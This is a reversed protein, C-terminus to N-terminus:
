HPVLAILAGAMIAADAIDLLGGQRQMVPPYDKIYSARKARSAALDGAVSAVGAALAALAADRISLVGTTGALTLATLLLMASGFALGEATKNPSLRPFIRHRGFLKGGLLAYSDFTEVLIFAGLLAVLHADDMAAAVTLGLPLAPFLALEAALRSLGNESGNRRTAFIFLGALLAIMAVAALRAQWDLSIQITMVALAVAAAAVTLTTAGRSQAHRLAVVSAAEWCIRAAFLLLVPVRAPQPLLATAIVAVAIVSESNLIPLLAKSAASTAPLRMLTVLLVYGIALLIAAAIAIEAVTM